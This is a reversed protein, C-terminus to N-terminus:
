KFIHM